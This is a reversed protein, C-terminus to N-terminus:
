LKIFHSAVFAAVAAAAHTLYPKIKTWFSAVAVKATTEASSIDAKVATVVPDTM